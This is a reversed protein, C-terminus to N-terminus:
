GDIRGSALTASMAEVKVSVGALAIGDGVPLALDPAIATPAAAAQSWATLFGLSPKILEITDITVDLYRPPAAHLALGSITARHSLLSYEAAKYSRSFGTPLQQLALDLAAHFRQQPYVVLGFYLAGAVLAAAATWLSIKRM